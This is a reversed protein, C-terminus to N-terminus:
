RSVLRRLIHKISPPPINNKLSINSYYRRLGHPIKMQKWLITMDACIFKFTYLQGSFGAAWLKIRINM